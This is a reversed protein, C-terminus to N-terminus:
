KCGPIAPAKGTMLVKNRLTNCFSDEKFHLLKVCCQSRCIRVRDNQSLTGAKKGDVTLYLPADETTLNQFELTSQASFILPKAYPSISCVPTLSICDLTPDLVSGGAAMSYATSGTPTAVIVGDALYTGIGKGNHTAGIEVLRAAGFNGIVADNFARMTQEGEQKVLTVDLMMREEIKVDDSFLTPLLSLEDVELEALYGVRGLNVGLIPIGKPAFHGAARLITGDGGLIIALDAERVAEAHPYVQVECPCDALQALVAQKVSAAKAIHTNEILAITQIALKM